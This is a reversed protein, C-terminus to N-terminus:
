DETTTAARVCRKSLSILVFSNFMELRLCFSDSVERQRFITHLNVVSCSSRLFRDFM